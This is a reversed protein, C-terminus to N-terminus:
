SIPTQNDSRSHDPDEKCNWDTTSKEQKALKTAILKNEAQTDQQNINSLGVQYFPYKSLDMEITKKPM